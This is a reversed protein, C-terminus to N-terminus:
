HSTESQVHPIMLWLRFQLKQIPACICRIRKNDGAFEMQLSRNLCKTKSYKYTRRCRSSSRKIITLNTNTCVQFSACVGSSAPSSFVQTQTSIWVAESSQCQKHTMDPNIRRMRCDLNQPLNKFHLIKSGEFLRLLNNCVPFFSLFIEPLIQNTTKDIQM